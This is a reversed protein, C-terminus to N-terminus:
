KKLLKQQLIAKGDAQISIIYIGSAWRSIDLMITDTNSKLSIEAILIGLTVRYNSISFVDCHRSWRM